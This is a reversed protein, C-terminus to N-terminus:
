SNLIGARFLLHRVGQYHAEWARPGYGGAFILALPINHEVLSEKLRRSQIEYGGRTCYAIVTLNM